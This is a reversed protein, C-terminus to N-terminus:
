STGGAMSPQPVASRELIRILFPQSEPFRQIEEQFLARAQAMDGDELYLYGLEALMGPAVNNQKKGRDIAAVLAKKYAERESPSKYYAYLADEYNGWSFRTAPACESLFTLALAVVALTRLHRM